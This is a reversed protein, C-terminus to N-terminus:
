ITGMARDTVHSTVSKQLFLVTHLNQCRYTISQMSSFLPFFATESERTTRTSAMEHQVHTQNEQSIFAMVKLCMTKTTHM